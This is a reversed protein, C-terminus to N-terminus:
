ESPEARAPVSFVGGELTSFSSLHGSIKGDDTAMHVHLTQGAPMFYRDHDFPDYIGVLTVNASAIKGHAGDPQGVVSWEADSITGSLRFPVASSPCGSAAASEALMDELEAMSTVTKGAPRVSWAEPVASVFFVAGADEAPVTEVEVTDPGTARAIHWTGNVLTLEERYGASPGYGIATDPRPVDALSVAIMGPEAKLASRSGYATITDGCVQPGVAQHEAQPTNCAALLTLCAGSVIRVVTM